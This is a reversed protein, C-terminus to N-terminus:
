RRPLRAKSPSSSASTAATVLSNTATVVAQAGPQAFTGVSIGASSRSYANNFGNIVSNTLTIQPTGKAAHIGYGPGTNASAQVVSANLHV